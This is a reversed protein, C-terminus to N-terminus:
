GVIRPYGNVMDPEGEDDLLVKLVDGPQVQIPADVWAFDIWYHGHISIDVVKGSIFGTLKYQNGVKQVFPRLEDKIQEPHAVVFRALVIAIRGRSDFVASPDDSVASVTQM